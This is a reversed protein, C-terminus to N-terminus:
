DPRPSFRPSFKPVSSIVDVGEGLRAVTLLAWRSTFTDHQHQVHDCLLRIVFSVFSALVELHLDNIFENLIVSKSVTRVRWM